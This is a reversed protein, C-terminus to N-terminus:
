NRFHEWECPDAFIVIFHFSVSTTHIGFCLNVTYIKLTLMASYSWQVTQTKSPTRATQQSYICLKQHSIEPPNAYYVIRCYLDTVFTYYVMQSVCMKRGNRLMKYCDLMHLVCSCRISMFLLSFWFTFAQLEIWVILVQGYEPTNLPATDWCCTVPVPHLSKQPGGEGSRSERWVCVCLRQHLRVFLQTFILDVEHLPLWCEVLQVYVQNAQLCLFLLQTKQEELIKSFLCVSSSMPHPLVQNTGIPFYAIIPNQKSKSFIVCFKVPYSTPCAFCCSFIIFPM